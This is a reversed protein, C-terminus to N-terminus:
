KKAVSIGDYKQKAKVVKEIYKRSEASPHNKNLKLYVQQPTLSNIVTVAHKRDKSFTRLVNGAGGNYASIVSYERSLPNTIGKLYIDDLISLYAAGTDINNHPNFLYSRDPQGSKKKIRQFVDKGATSPVVQMLGYAPIHSTAYPNFHSETEMISYILSEPIQYRQAAKRVIAEYKQGRVQQHNAEMPIEIRYVTRGNSPVKQLKNEVLWTAYRNARWEWKVIHGEHDKVQDELIPPGKFTIGADTFLDPDRNEDPTLLTTVIAEQLRQKHDKEEVTEVIINGKAFDVEGRSSYGKGYKVYKDSSSEAVNDDGWIVSAKKKLQLVKAEYKRYAQELQAQIEKYEKYEQSLDPLHSTKYKDYEKALAPFKALWDPKKSESDPLSEAKQQSVLPAASSTQEPASDNTNGATPIIVAPLEQAIVETAEPLFVPEPLSHAQISSPKAVAAVTPQAIAQARPQAVSTQVPKSGLPPPNNKAIYGGPPPLPVLSKVPKLQQQQSITQNSGGQVACGSLILTSAMASLLLPLRKFGSPTKKLITM